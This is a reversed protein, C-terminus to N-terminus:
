KVSFIRSVTGSVSM